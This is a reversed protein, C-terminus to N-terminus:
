DNIDAAEHVECIRDVDVISMTSALSSSCNVMRIRGTQVTKAIPLLDSIAVSSMHDVREMDLIVQRQPSNRVLKAIRLFADHVTKQDHLWSETFHAEITDDTTEIRVCTRPNNKFDAFLEGSAYEVEAASM